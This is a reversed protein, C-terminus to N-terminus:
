HCHITTRESVPRSTFTCSPCQLSNRHWLWHLFIYTMALFLWPNPAPTQHAWTALCPPSPIPWVGSLSTRKPSGRGYFHGLSTAASAIRLMRSSYAALGACCKLSYIVQMIVGHSSPASIPDMRHCTKTTAAQSCTSVTRELAPPCVGEAIPKGAAQLTTRGIAIKTRMFSARKREEPQKTSLAPGCVVCVGRHLHSSNTMDRRQSSCHLSNVCRQDWCQLSVCTKQKGEPM